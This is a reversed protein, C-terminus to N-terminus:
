YGSCTCSPSLTGECCKIRDISQDCGCVGHHHSCCGSRAITGSVVGFEQAYDVFPGQMLLATIQKLCGPGLHHSNKSSYSTALEVVKFDAAWVGRSLSAVSLLLALGVSIINRNFM